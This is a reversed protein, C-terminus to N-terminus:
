AALLEVGISGFQALKPLFTGPLEFDFSEYKGQIRLKLEGVDACQALLACADANLVFSGKESSLSGSLSAGANSVKITARLDGSKLIISQMLPRRVSTNTINVAPKITAVGANSITVNFGTNMTFTYSDLDSTNEGSEFSIDSGNNIFGTGAIDDYTFALGKDELATLDTETKESLWDIWSNSQPAEAAEETFASSGSGTLAELMLQTIADAKGTEPLNTASQFSSLAHKTQSGFSGDASGTLYGLQILEEQITKVTDSKDGRELTEIEALAPLSVSGLQESVERLAERSMRVLQEAAYAVVNDDGDIGLLIISDVELTVKKDKEYSKATFTVTSGLDYREALACGSLLALVLLLIALTQLNRM